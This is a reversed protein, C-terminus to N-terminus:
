LLVRYELSKCLGLHGLLGLFAPNLGRCKQQSLAYPMSFVEMMMVQRCDVVKSVIMFVIKRGTHDFCRGDLDRQATLQCRRLM